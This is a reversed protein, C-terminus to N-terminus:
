NNRESILKLNIKYFFYNLLSVKLKQPEFDHSFTCDNGKHCGGISLTYYYYNM